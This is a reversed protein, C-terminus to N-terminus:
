RVDPADRAAKVWGVGLKVWGVGLRHQRITKATEISVGEGGDVM